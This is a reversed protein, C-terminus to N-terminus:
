VKIFSHWPLMFNHARTVNLSVLLTHHQARPDPDQMRTGQSYSVFIVQGQEREAGRYNIKGGQVEKKQKWVEAWHEAGSMVAGPCVCQLGSCMLVFECTVSIQTQSMQNLFLSSLSSVTM